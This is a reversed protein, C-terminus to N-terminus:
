SDDDLIREWATRGERRASGASLVSVLGGPTRIAISHIIMPIVFDHRVTVLGNFALVIAGGNVELIATREDDISTSVTSISVGHLGDDMEVADLAIRFVGVEWTHVRPKAPPLNM